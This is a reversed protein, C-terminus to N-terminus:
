WLEFLENFHLSMHFACSKAHTCSFIWALPREFEVGRFRYSEAPWDRSGYRRKRWPLGIANQLRLRGSQHMQLLTRAQGRKYTWGALGGLCNRINRISGQSAIRSVQVARSPISLAHSVGDAFEARLAKTDRGHLLTSTHYHHSSCQGSGRKPFSPHAAHM